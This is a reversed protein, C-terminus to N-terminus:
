YRPKVQEAYEREIYLAEGRRFGDRDKYGSIWMEKDGDENTVVHAHESQCHQNKAIRPGEPWRQDAPIIELFLEEAEEWSVKVFEAHFLEEHLKDHEMRLVKQQTENIEIDLIIQEKTRM